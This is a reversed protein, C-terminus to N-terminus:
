IYVKPIYTAPHLALYYLQPTPYMYGKLARLHKKKEKLSRYINKEKKRKRQRNLVIESLNIALGQRGKVVGASSYLKLFAIKRMWLM